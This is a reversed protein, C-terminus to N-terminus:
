TARRSVPTAATACSGFCTNSPLQLRLPPVIAIMPIEEKSRNCTGVGLYAIGEKNSLECVRWPNRGTWSDRMTMYSLCLRSGKRRNSQILSRITAPLFNKLVHPKAGDLEADYDKLEASSIWVGPHNAYVELLRLAQASDCDMFVGDLTAGMRALDVTLRLRPSEKLLLHQAGSEDGQQTGEAEAEAETERRLALVGEGELSMKWTRSPPKPAIISGAIPVLLLLRPDRQCILLANRLHGPIESDPMRGGRSSLLELLEFVSKPYDM